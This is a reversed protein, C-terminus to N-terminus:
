HIQLMTTRPTPPFFFFFVYACHITNSSRLRFSTYELQDVHLSLALRASLNVNKEWSNWDAWAGQEYLQRAGGACSTLFLYISPTSSVFEQNTQRVLACWHSSYWLLKSQGGWRSVSYLQPPVPLVRGHSRSFAGGVTLRNQMTYLSRNISPILIM